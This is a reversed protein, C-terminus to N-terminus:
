GASAALDLDKVFRVLREDREYGVARWFDLAETEERIAYLTIRIAGRERPSLEGEAVLARGIGSRRREPLVVLRFLSGRWGDFGAILSGVLQEGDVAILLAQPDRAILSGISQEDDTHSPHAGALRWLRLVAPTEEPHAPRILYSSV